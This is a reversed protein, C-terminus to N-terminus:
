VVVGDCKCLDSPCFGAACNAVCWDDTVVASIAHCSGPTPTPTPTPTPAPTPTPTPTPSPMPTPTPSPTPEGYLAFIAGPTGAQPPNTNRRVRFYGAEGFSEGWSNKILFYPVGDDEGAGVLTTAHDYTNLPKGCNSIIGGQYGSLCSSVMLWGAPGLQLLHNLIDDQNGDPQTDVCVMHSATATSPTGSSRSCSGKSARYPYSDETTAYYHNDIYYKTTSECGMYMISPCDVLEQESLSQLPNGGQVVNAGEMLGVGCFAWCVGYPGQDKVPTVAGRERWDITENSLTLSSRRQLNATSPSCSWGTGESARAALDPSAWTRRFEEDTLDSFRDPGYTATDVSSRVEYSRLNAQFVSFRHEEEGADSFIRGFKHKWAAFLERDTLADPAACACAVVFIRLPAM